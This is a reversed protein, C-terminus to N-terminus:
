PSVALTLEAPMDQCWDFANAIITRGEAWTETAQRSLGPQVVWVHLQTDLPADAAADLIQQVQERDRDVVTLGPRQKVRRALERWLLAPASWRASRIAQGIVDYVDALRAGPQAQSSAKCHFLHVRRINETQEVAIVDALEYAGHDVIVIPDHLTATVYEVTRVQINVAGEQTEGAENAIDTTTWDWIDFVSEPVPLDHLPEFVVTGSASSGNAFYFTPPYDTLLEVM